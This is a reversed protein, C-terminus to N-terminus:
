ISKHVLLYQAVFLYYLFQHPKTSMFCPRREHALQIDGFLAHTLETFLGGDVYVILNGGKKDFVDMRKLVLAGSHPKNALARM